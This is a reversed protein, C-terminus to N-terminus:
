FKRPFHYQWKTCRHAPRDDTIRAALQIVGPILAIFAAAVLPVLASRSLRMLGISAAATLACYGYLLPWSKPSVDGISFPLSITVL